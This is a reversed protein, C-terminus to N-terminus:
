RRAARGARGVAARVREVRMQSSLRRLGSCRRALPDHHLAVDADGAGGLRLGVDAAVEAAALGAHAAVEGAAEAVEIAVRQGVRSLASSGATSPKPPM